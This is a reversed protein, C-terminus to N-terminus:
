PEGRLQGNGDGSGTAAIEDLRAALARTESSPSSDLETRLLRTLREYQGRAGAADSGLATARMLSRWAEEGYPAIQIARQAQEQAGPYDHSDLLLRCLDNLAGLCAQTLRERETLAWDAFFGPLLDGQYLGAAARLAEVMRGSDGQAIKAQRLYEGFQAVDTDCAVASLQVNNRDALLVGGYPTGPPELQKRLSNLAVRLANSSAEITDDPWILDRLLERPQPRERHLALYALVAATKQTRFRTITRQGERVARLGGLLEIRWLAESM